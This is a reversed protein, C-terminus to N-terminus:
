GRSTMYAEPCPSNIETDIAIHTRTALSVEVVLLRSGPLQPACRRANTMSADAAGGLDVLLGKGEHSPSSGDQRRGLHFPDRQELWRHLRAAFETFTGARISALAEQEDNTLDFDGMVLAPAAVLRERFAEDVVATMILCGLGNAAM